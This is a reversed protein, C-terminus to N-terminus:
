DREHEVPDSPADVACGASAGQDFGTRGRALQQAGGPEEAQSLRGARDVGRSGSGEAGQANRLQDFLDHLEEWHRRPLHQKLNREKPVLCRQIRADPFHETTAKRLAASGDFVALLPRDGGATFGRRALRAVLASATSVNETAGLEFDLVAKRGDVTIGVAVIAVLDDALEVGDVM